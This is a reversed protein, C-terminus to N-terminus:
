GQPKVSIAVAETFTIAVTDGAKVKELRKGDAAKFTVLRGEPLRVSLTGARRDVAVVAVVAKQSRIVGAGPPEEATTGAGVSVEARPSKLEESTPPRIEYALSQLYDVIVLDGVKVQELRKVKEDIRFTLPKGDSSLMSIIRARPDIATVRARIQVLLVDEASRDTEDSAVFATAQPLSSQKNFPADSQPASPVTSCAALAGALSAILLLAKMGAQHQPM